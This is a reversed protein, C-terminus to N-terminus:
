SIANTRVAGEVTKLDDEHALALEQDPRQLYAFDSLYSVRSDPRTIDPSVEAIYDLIGILPTVISFLDESSFITRNRSMRSGQDTRRFDSGSVPRATRRSCMVSTSPRRPVLTCDQALGIGQGSCTATARGTM